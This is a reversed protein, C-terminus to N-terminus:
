ARSKRATELRARLTPEDYHGDHLVGNFFFTPTTHVGSARGLIVDHEVRAVIVTDDLEARVRSLDVGSAGADALLGREDVPSDHAMLHDHMPWFKGQHDAAEAVRALIEAHPHLDRLPFHRFVVRVDANDVFLRDVVKQAARTHPCDYDGYEIITVAPEDAGRAHDADRVPPVPEHKSM